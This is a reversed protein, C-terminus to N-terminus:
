GCSFLRWNEACGSLGAETPIKGVEGCKNRVKREPVEAEDDTCGAEEKFKDFLAVKEWRFAKAEALGM